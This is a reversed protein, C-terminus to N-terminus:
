NNYKALLYSYAAIFLTCRFIGTRHCFDDVNSMDIDLIRVMNDESHETIELDPQLQTFTDNCDFIQAYWKKAELFNQSERAMREEEVQDILIKQESDLPMGRYARDIDNLMLQMSTGDAILHHYDIFLYFNAGDDFLRIRFLRDKFIDYPTVLSQKVSEFDAIHEVSISFSEHEDISQMPEGDDSLSIRTFLTPHAMVATEIARCLRTADLSHDLIYIYPLNYCSEGQHNACEVYIGYQSKSLPATKKM